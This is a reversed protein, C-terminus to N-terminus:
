LSLQGLFQRPFSNDLQTMQMSLFFICIDQFKVVVLLKYM